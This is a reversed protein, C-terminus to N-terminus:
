LLLSRCSDGDSHQSSGLREDQPAGCSPAIPLICLERASLFAFHPRLSSLPPCLLVQLKTEYFEKSQTPNLNRNELYRSATMEMILWHEALTIYGAYMLYDVSALGLANPDKKIEISLRRTLEIWEEAKKHLMQSLSLLTLSFFFCLSSPCRCVEAHWQINKLKTQGQATKCLEQLGMCHTTIVTLDDFGKGFIKRRLLDLAQIGTTGEWIASIRTDRLIQEQHNGKIYGHGGYIQIGLNAAEIGRETLFGKLIPTMLGLQAEFLHANELDGIEM